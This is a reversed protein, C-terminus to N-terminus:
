CCLVTCICTYLSFKLSLLEIFYKILNICIQMQSIWSSFVHLRFFCCVSNQQALTPATSYPKGFFSHIYVFIRTKVLVTYILHFHPHLFTVSLEFYLVVLLVCIYHSLSLSFFRVNDVDLAANGPETWKKWLRQWVAGRFERSLHRQWMINSKDSDEGKM